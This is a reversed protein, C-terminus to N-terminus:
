AEATPLTAKAASTRRPKTLGAVAVVTVMAAAFAGLVGWNPGEAVAAEGAPAGGHAHGGSAAQAQNSAGHAEMTGSQVGATKLGGAPLWDGYFAHTLDHSAEGFEASASEMAGRDRDKVALEMLSAAYATRDAADGLDNPWTTHMLLLNVRALKESVTGLAAGDGKTWATVGSRLDTIARSMDLYSAQVCAPDEGARVLEMWTYADRNLQRASDAIPKAAEATAAADKRDIAVLVNPLARQIPPLDKLLVGTPYIERMLIDIREAKEKAVGMSAEDGKQWNAIRTQLDALNGALDLYIIHAAMQDLSMGEMAPLYDGYFEHVIDHSAEGLEVSATEAAARNEEKLAKAMPAVAAKTRAVSKAMEKPWGTSSLIAQVRDLKEGALKLSDANGGEWETVRARLDTINGTLHLYSGHVVEM